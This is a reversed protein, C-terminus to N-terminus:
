QPVVRSYCYKSAMFDASILMLIIQATNLHSAIADVWESGAPIQRDHWASILGQNEMLSLHKALEDHLKEDSHAYSSFVEIPRRSVSSSSAM